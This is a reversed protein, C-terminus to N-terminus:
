KCGVEAPTRGARRSCLSESLGPTTSRAMVQDESARRRGARFGRPVRDRYAVFEGDFIRALDAEEIPRVIVHWLLGPWSTSFRRALRAVPWPPGRCCGPPPWPIAFIRTCSRLRCANSPQRHAAANGARPRGDHVRQGPWSSPPASSSSRLWAGAASPFEPVGARRGAEAVLPPLVFLFLGWFVIVQGIMKLLNWSALAPRARRFRM